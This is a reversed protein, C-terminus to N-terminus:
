YRAALGFRQMGLRATSWGSRLIRSGFPTGRIWYLFRAIRPSGAFVYHYQKKIEGGFSCKFYTIPDNAHRIGGLDYSRFGRHAYIQFQYWYLYRNLAACTTANERNRERASASFLMRTRGAEEDRLTLHSCLPVGDLYVTFVDSFCAFDRAAASTLPAVESTDRRSAVENYLALFSQFASETNQQIHGQLKEGRRIWRRCTQNMGGWVHDPGKSLDILLTSHQERRVLYRHHALELETAVLKVIEDPALRQLMEYALAAEALFARRERLIGFRKTEVVIM